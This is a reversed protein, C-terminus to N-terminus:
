LFSLTRHRDGSLLTAEMDLDTQGSRAKDLKELIANAGKIYAQRRKKNLIIMGLTMSLILSFHNM